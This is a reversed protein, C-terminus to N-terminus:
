RAVRASGGKPGPLLRRNARRTGYRTGDSQHCCGSFDMQARGRREAVFQQGPANNNQPLPRGDNASPDHLGALRRHVERIERDHPQRCGSEAASRKDRAVLLGSVQEVGDVPGIEVIFRQRDFM